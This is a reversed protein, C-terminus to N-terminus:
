IVPGPRARNSIAKGLEAALLLGLAVAAILLWQVFSLPVVGLVTRLAPVVFPLFVLVLGGLVALPAEVGNERGM